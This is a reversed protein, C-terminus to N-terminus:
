EGLAAAAPAIRLTRKVEESTPGLAAPQRVGTLAAVDYLETVIGQFIISHVVAGQALDIFYLGARPNMGREALADDLALGSFTKNDRPLSLGVVATNGMFSLGRLYGPCFAIPEFTGRALDITGFEGTGSNHLYLRGEHWRPSHPMSLGACVVESTAVDMVVGQDRRGDRWGDFTDCRAVMTVFAPRGERLALGNLHCRDEPVLRSIFPPKWIPQFSHDPDPRALCNFLTNVFIPKGEGDLALDHADLDGTFYSMRPAYLADAGKPGPAGADLIDTFRLLQVESSVWLERARGSAPDHGIGLGLCRGINRNYSWFKGAGDLGFFILKGVQYTTLALSANQQALWGEFGRSLDVSFQPQTRLAANNSATPKM